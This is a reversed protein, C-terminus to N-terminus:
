DLSLPFNADNSGEKVEFLLETKYNYKIPVQERGNADRAHIEIRHPGVAAGPVNRVYNVTYKGTQDTIGISASQKGDQDGALPRFIVEANPLPKGDITVIGSVTGLPPYEPGSHMVTASLWYVVFVLVVVVTAAPGVQRLIDKGVDAADEAMSARRVEPLDEDARKRSGASAVKLLDGAMSSASAAVDEM